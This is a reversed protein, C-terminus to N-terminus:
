GTYHDWSMSMAILWKASRAIGVADMWRAVGGRFTPFGLGYLLSMDAEEPSGVIGEELVFAMEIGIATMLRECIEQESFDRAAKATEAIRAKVDANPAKAPKGDTVTYTYFGSGNKQGLGGMDMIVKYWADFDKHLRDPYAASLVGDCHQMTDLGIVDALYAPGMPWGWNEMARDVAEYDAGDQILQLFAAYYAFLVRNVLFGPCDNVVLNKRLRYHM